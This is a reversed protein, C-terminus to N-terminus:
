RDVITKLKELFQIKSNIIDQRSYRYNYGEDHETVVLCNKYAKILEDINSKSNLFDIERFGPFYPKIRQYVKVNVNPKFEKPLSYRYGRVCLSDIEESIFSKGICLMSVIFWFIVYYTTLSEDIRYGYYTVATVIFGNIFSIPIFIGRRFESTRVRSIFSMKISLHNFFHILKIFFSVTKRSKYDREVKKKTSNTKNAKPSSPQNKGKPQDLSSMFTSFVLACENVFTLHSTFDKSTDKLNANEEMVNGLSAQMNLSFLEHVVLASSSEEHIAEFYQNYRKFITEKINYNANKPIFSKLNEVLFDSKLLLANVQFLSFICSEIHTIVNIKSKSINFIKIFCDIYLGSLTKTLNLIQTQKKNRNSM